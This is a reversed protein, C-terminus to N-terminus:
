RQQIAPATIMEGNSSNKISAFAEENSEQVILNGQDLRKRERAVVEDGHEEFWSVPWFAMALFLCGITALMQWLWVLM